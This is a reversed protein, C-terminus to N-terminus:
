AKQGWALAISYRTHLEEWELQATRLLEVCVAAPVGLRSTFAASVRTFLARIDSAMLSGVRGGGHGLPLDITRREVSRLGADVLYRDLSRFVVSATDLGTTRNLKRLLEALRETAPGASQFETAGEVLEVWGRPGCVRVLEHVTGPWADVPVGSFLLRQHVFDFRADGFPLGRLINGRVAHCGTPGGPKPPVLDFGVVVAEPHERAVDYGWQGTGAGVDLVRRPSAIPALQHGGLAEALAYHQLDLRDTEAPHRPLLYAVDGSEEVVEPV